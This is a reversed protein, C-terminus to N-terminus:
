QIGAENKYQQKLLIPDVAPDVNEELDEILVIRPRTGAPGARAAGVEEHGWFVIM